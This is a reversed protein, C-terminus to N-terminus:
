RAYRQRWFQAIGAVLCLGPVVVVALWFILRGEEGLVLLQETGPQKRPSRPAILAAEDSLWNVTNLLLDANGERDLFFNSAFESDGYVVLRGGPKGAVSALRIEVGVTIPGRRDRDSVFRPTGSALVDAEPTAWSRPSTRLVSLGTAGPPLLGLEVPRVLSLVPPAALGETIPHTAPDLPVVITVFEGGFMRYDPDVVAEGRVIVGHRALYAGLEADELADLMLLVRGGRDLYRDLMMQEEASFAGHPGAIIVVTADEPVDTVGSLGVVRVQYLEEQVRAAAASYGGQRDRAAPTKEGHGTVFYVTKPEARTVQLIAWMLTEERPNALMRRHGGSEVVVAGYSTVGYQRARAPSRNVDVEEWRIRASANGVRRLLGRIYPNRPNQSRLFAILKVDAELGALLRRAHPSLAYRREPTLDIRLDYRYLTALLVGFLGGLAVTGLIIRLWERVARMTAGAM